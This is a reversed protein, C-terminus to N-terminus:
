HGAYGRHFTALLPIYLQKFDDSLAKSSCGRGSQQVFGAVKNFLGLWKATCFGAVKSFLVMAKTSCFWLLNREEM